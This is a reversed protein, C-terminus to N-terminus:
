LASELIIQADSALEGKEAFAQLAYKPKVNGTLKDYVSACSTNAPCKQEKVLIYTPATTINFKKYLTPDIIIAGEQEELSEILKATETFSNDKLGRLVLIGDYKKAESLLSKLNEKTISFTVFIYFNSQQNDTRPMLGEDHHGAQQYIGKAIQSNEENFLQNMGNQEYALAFTTIFLLISFLSYKLAFLLQDEEM